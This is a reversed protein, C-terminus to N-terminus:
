TLNFMEKIINLLAFTFRSINEKAPNYRANLLVELPEELAKLIVYNVRLIIGQMDIKLRMLTNRKYSYILQLHNSNSLKAMETM